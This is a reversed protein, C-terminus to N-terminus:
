QIPRDFAIKTPEPEMKIGARYIVKKVSGMLRTLFAIMSSSTTTLEVGFSREHDCEKRLRIKDRARQAKKSIQHVGGKSLRPDIAVKNRIVVSGTRNTKQSPVKRRRRKGM